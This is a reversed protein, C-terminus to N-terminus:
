MTSFYRCLADRIGNPQQQANVGQQYDGEAQESAYDGELFEEHHEECYNHLVCCASVIRSVFTIHAECEKSLCRWRGKLRGFAREVNM